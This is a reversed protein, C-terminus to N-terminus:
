FACLGRHPVVWICLNSGKPSARNSNWPEPEAVTLAHGIRFSEEDGHPFIKRTVTHLFGASGGIDVPRQRRLVARDQHNYIRDASAGRALRAGSDAHRQLVAHPRVFCSRNERASVVGCHFM